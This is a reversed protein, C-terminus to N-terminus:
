GVDWRMMVISADVPAVVRVRVAVDSALPTRGEDVVGGSTGVASSSCDRDVHWCVSVEKWLTMSDTAELWFKWM